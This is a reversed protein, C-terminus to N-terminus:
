FDLKAVLEAKQGTFNEWRSIIIDVYFNEYEIMFCNRRTKECAILTSGSGGFGDFINQNKSSFDFIMEELLNVPKQTPHIRKRGESRADGARCYGSWLYKYLRASRNFSTWAMEFDAFKTGNNRKDWVLWCSSPFLFDTFYNGGFIIYNEAHLMQCIKFFEFATKTDTDGKVQKYVKGKSCIRGDKGVIDIGYPPDTLVLDIKNDGLLSKVAKFNTSDGCLLYHNELKFLDGFESKVNTQVPLVDIEKREPVAGFDALSLQM